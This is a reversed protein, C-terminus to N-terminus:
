CNLYIFLLLNSKSDSKELIESTNYGFTDTMQEGGMFDVLLEIEEDHLQVDEEDTNNASRFEFCQKQPRNGPEIAEPGM